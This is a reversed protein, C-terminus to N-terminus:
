SSKKSGSKKNGSQSKQNGGSEDQPLEKRYFGGAKYHDEMDPHVDAEKGTSEHVMKITQKAM